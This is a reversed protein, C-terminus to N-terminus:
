ACIWKDGNVEFVKAGDSLHEQITVGSDKDYKFCIRPHRKEFEPLYRLVVDSYQYLFDEETRRMGYLRSFISQVVSEDYVFFGSRRSGVYGIIAKDYADIRSGPPGDLVGAGKIDAPTKKIKNIIRDAPRSTSKASNPM